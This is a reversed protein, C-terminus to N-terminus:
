AVRRRIPWQRSLILSWVFGGGVKASFQLAIIAPMFAGFAITPFLISDFAAGTINSGNSKALYPEGRLWHYTIADFIGSVVFAIFSALAIRGAAPNVAYSLLGGAGILAAMRYWLTPGQWREHLLDRLSLDLGILIFSNIPSVWPGFVAVSLNAGVMAACYAIVALM